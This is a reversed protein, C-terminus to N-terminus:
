FCHLRLRLPTILPAFLACKGPHRAVVPIGSWQSNRWIVSPPVSFDWRHWLYKRWYLVNAESLGCNQVHPRWVQKKSARLVMWGQKAGFYGVRRQAGIFVWM